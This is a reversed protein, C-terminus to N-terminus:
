TIAPQASDGCEAVSEDVCIEDAEEAHRYLDMNLFARHLHQRITWDLDPEEIVLQASLLPSNLRPCDAKRFEM